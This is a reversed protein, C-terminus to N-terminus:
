KTLSLPTVTLEDALKERTKRSSTVNRKRAMQMRAENNTVSSHADETDKQKTTSFIADEPQHWFPATGGGTPGAWVLALRSALSLSFSPPLLVAPRSRASDGWEQGRQCARAPPLRATALRHAPTSTRPRSSTVHRTKIPGRPSYMSNATIQGNSSWFIRFFNCFNGFKM